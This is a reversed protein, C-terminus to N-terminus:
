ALKAEVDVDLFVKAGQGHINVEVHVTRPEVGTVRRVERAALAQILDFVAPDERLLAVLRRATSADCTDRLLPALCPLDITLMTSGLYTDRGGSRGDRQGESIIEARGLILDLATRSLRERVEREFLTIRSAKAMPRARIPPTAAKPHSRKPDTM